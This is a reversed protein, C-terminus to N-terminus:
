LRFLFKLYNIYRLLFILFMISNKRYKIFFLKPIKPIKPIVYLNNICYMCCDSMDDLKNKNELFFPLWQNKQEESFKNELFWKTYEISLWKRQAYKGKLKCIIEPGTYAKLKQSARIFKIDVSTDKYLEVFKGYLVHSILKMKPNFTPQLEIIINKISIFIENQSDYIDQIKQIFIKTIDQLLYDNVNKKKYLNKKTNEINKPFHTKCSFSNANNEDIYTQSCKKNCTNGNKLLHQCKYDDGDLVNYVNWLHIKYTSFDIPNECSMCCLALNRLGIDISLIM